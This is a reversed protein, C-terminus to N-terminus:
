ESDTFLKTAKEERVVTVADEAFRSVYKGGVGDSFDYEELM